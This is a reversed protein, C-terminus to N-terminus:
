IEIWKVGSAFANLDKEYEERTARIAFSDIHLISDDLFAKAARAKDVSVWDAVINFRISKDSQVKQYLYEEFFIGGETNFKNGLEEPSLEDERASEVPTSSKNELPPKYTDM